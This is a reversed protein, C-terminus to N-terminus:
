WDVSKIIPRVYQNGYMFKGEADQGVKDLQALNTHSHRQNVMSDISAASSVPGGQIADWQFVMDMSEYEGVKAWRAEVTNYFYIASGSNVSPDDSADTVLVLYPKDRVFQSLQAYTDAIQINNISAIAETVMELVHYGSPLMRTGSGHYNSLYLAMLGTAPEAVAYITNPEVPNPLELVKAFRIPARAVVPIEHVEHYVKTTFFGDAGMFMLKANPNTFFTYMSDLSVAM